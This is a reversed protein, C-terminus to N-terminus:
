GTLQRIAGPNGLMFITYSLLDRVTFMSEVVESESSLEM